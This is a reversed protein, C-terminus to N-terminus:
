NVIKGEASTTMRTLKDRNQVKHNLGSINDTGAVAKMCCKVSKAISEKFLKMFLLSNNGM